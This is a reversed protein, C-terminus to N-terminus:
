EGDAYRRGATRSRRTDLDAREDPALPPPYVHDVAGPDNGAHGVLRCWDTLSRLGM